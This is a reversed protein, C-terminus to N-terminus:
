KLSWCYPATWFHRWKPRVLYPQCGGRGGIVKRWKKASGGGGTSFHRWTQVAGKLYPAEFIFELATIEKQTSFEFWILHYAEKIVMEACFISPFNSIVIIRLAYVIRGYFDQHSSCQAPNLPHRRQRRYLVKRSSSHQLSAVIPWFSYCNRIPLFHIM